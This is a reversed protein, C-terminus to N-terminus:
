KQAIRASVGHGLGSSLPRRTAARGGRATKQLFCSYDFYQQAQKAAQLDKWNGNVVNFFPRVKSQSIKSVLTDVCSKIVNLSPRSGTDYEMDNYNWYGALQLDKINNIDINRSSYYKKINRTYKVDRSKNLSKLETIRNLILDDLEKKLM